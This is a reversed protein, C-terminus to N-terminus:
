SLSKTVLDFSEGTKINAEQKNKRGSAMDVFQFNNLQWLYIDWLKRFSVKATPLIEVVSASASIQSLNLEKASDCCKRLVYGNSTGKGLLFYCWCKMGVTKCCM